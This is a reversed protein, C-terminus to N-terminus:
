ALGRTFRDNHTAALRLTYPKAHEAAVYSPCPLLILTRAAALGSAIYVGLARSTPCLDRYHPGSLCQYLIRLVRTRPSLPAGPLM